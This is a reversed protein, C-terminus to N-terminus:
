LVKEEEEQLDSHAYDNVVNANWKLGIIAGKCSKQGHLSNVRQQREYKYGLRKIEALVYNFEINRKGLKEKMENVLDDKFIRDDTTGHDCIEELANKFSDYEDSIKSFQEQAFKPISLGGNRYYDAVYPLLLWLYARKMDDDNEFLKELGKVLQFRNEGPNSDADAM